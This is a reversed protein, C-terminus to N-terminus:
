SKQLDFGASEEMMTCTHQVMDSSDIRKSESPIKDKLGSSM